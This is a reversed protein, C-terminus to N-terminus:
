KAGKWEDHQPRDNPTLFEVRKVTGDEYFELAKVQPCLDGHAHGCWRCAPIQDITM